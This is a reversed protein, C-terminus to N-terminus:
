FAGLQCPKVKIGLTECANSVRMKRINLQRAIEWATKCPLRGNELGKEIKSKLEDDVTDLAKAIKKGPEYGFLGLQCKTIRFNVLDIAVGVNKPTENLQEVIDFVVACPIKEDKARKLIEKKINPDLQIDPGHKKSYDSSDEHGM